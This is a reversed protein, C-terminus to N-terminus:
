SCPLVVLLARFLPFCIFGWLVENWTDIWSSLHLHIFDFLYGMSNFVVVFCSKWMICLSVLLLATDSEFWGLSFSSSLLWVHIMFSLVLDPLECFIDLFSFSFIISWRFLVFCEYCGYRKKEKWSGVVRKRKTKSGQERVGALSIGGGEAEERTERKREKGRNKKQEHRGWCALRIGTGDAAWFSQRKGACGDEPPYLFCFLLLFFLFDIFIGDQGWNLPDVIAWKFITNSQTLGLLGFLHDSIVWLDTLWNHRAKNHWDQWNPM